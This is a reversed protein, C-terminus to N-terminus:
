ASFRHGGDTNITEGSTNTDKLFYLYSQAVEHPQAVHKTLMSKSFQELLAAKGEKPLGDWSFM